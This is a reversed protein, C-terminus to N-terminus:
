AVDAIMGLLTDILMLASNLPTQFEHPFNSEHDNLCESRNKEEVVSCHLKMTEISSTVDLLFIALAPVEQYEIEKIRIESFTFHRSDIKVCNKVSKKVKSRYM